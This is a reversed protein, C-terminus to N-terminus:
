RLTAYETKAEKLIPVDPDAEKWLAFFDQYATKARATDGSLAYARGFQLRGLSGLVSNELVGPHDLLKQFEAAV